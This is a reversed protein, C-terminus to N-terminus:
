VYGTVAMEIMCFYFENSRYVCRPDDPDFHAYWEALSEKDIRDQIKDGMWEGNTRIYAALDTDAPGFREIVHTDCTVHRFNQRRFLGPMKRGFYHDFFAGDTRNETAQVLQHQVLSLLKVDM